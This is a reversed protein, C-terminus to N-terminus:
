IGTSRAHQDIPVKSSTVAMHNGNTFKKFYKQGYGSLHTVQVNSQKLFVPKGLIETM